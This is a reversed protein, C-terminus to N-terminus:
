NEPLVSAIADRAEGMLDHVRKEGPEIPPHIVMKVRGPFLKLTKAPMIDATGLLTGPLVPLQEDMALRFAGKKFPLLRGDLSRTGEPFFLIGVGNGVRNLAENVAKRAENPRRRDIFIHGAKECGIGVGPIKRLEKKMVWKMDLKLWGYVLLIDYLSVHNCVVVFSRKIDAHQTGEVSVLIPTLYALLRAWRSAVHRSAFRPNVIIAFLVTLWGSFFTLVCAAPVLFLWM